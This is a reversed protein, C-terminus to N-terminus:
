LPAERTLPKSDIVEPFGGRTMLAVWQYVFSWPITVGIQTTEYLEIDRIPRPTQRFPKYAIVKGTRPQVVSITVEFVYRDIPEGIDFHNKDIFIKKHAGVVVVLETEQVSEARWAEPICAHWDHLRGDPRLFALKHTSDSPAFDAAQPVARARAAPALDEPFRLRKATSKKLPSVTVAEHGAATGPKFFTGNQWLLGGLFVVSSCAVFLVFLKM